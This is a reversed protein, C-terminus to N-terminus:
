QRVGKKDAMRAAHMRKKYQRRGMSRLIQREENRRPNTHQGLFQAPLRASANMVAAILRQIQSV